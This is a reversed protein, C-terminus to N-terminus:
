GGIGWLGLSSTTAMGSSEFSSGAGDSSKKTSETVIQPGRDDDDVGGPEGQRTRGLAHRGMVPSDGYHRRATSNDSSGQKAM